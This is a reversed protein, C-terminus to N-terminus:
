TITPAFDREYIILIGRPVSSYDGFEDKYRSRVLAEGTNNNKAPAQLLRMTTYIDPTVRKIEKGAVATAPQEVQKGNITVKPGQKNWPFNTVSANMRVSM